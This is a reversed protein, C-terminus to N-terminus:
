GQGDADVALGDADVAAVAGIHMELRYSEANLRAYWLRADRHTGVDQNNRPELPKPAM